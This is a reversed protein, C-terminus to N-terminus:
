DEVLEEANVEDEIPLARIRPAFVRHFLEGKKMLWDFGSQWADHQDIDFDPKFLVIRADQKEPLEQWELGPIEVDIAARTKMLLGFAKKANSGRIYIECGLRKHQRTVTLGISFRSRGVALSFWHQARPKRLKLSSGKNACHARFASWFEFYQTQTESQEKSTAKVAATYENPRAVIKFMPAPPSDGIRFLQMEIGFLWMDPAMKENLYDLARRHEETFERAIWIVCEAELGSAYTIIKGLHDHNTKELQNEIVVKKNADLDMAVIDAKYPGVPVETGDLELDMRVADSLRELNDPLALWSTFDRAEDRWVDRLEVFDLKGLKLQNM